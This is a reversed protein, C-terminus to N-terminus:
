LVELGIQPPKHAYTDRHIQLRTRAALSVITAPAGVSQHAVGAGYICSYVWVRSGIYVRCGM